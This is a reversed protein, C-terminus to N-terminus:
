WEFSLLAMIMSGPPLKARNAAMSPRRELVEEAKGLRVMVVAAGVMLNWWPRSPWELVVAAIHGAQADFGMWEVWEVKGGGGLRYAFSALLTLRATDARAPLQPLRNLSRAEELESKRKEEGESDVEKCVVLSAEEAGRDHENLAIPLVIALRFVKDRGQTYIRVKGTFIDV